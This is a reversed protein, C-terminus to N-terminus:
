KRSAGPPQYDRGVGRQCGLWYRLDKFEAEGRRAADAAEPLAHEVSEAEGPRREPWTPPASGPGGEAGTVRVQGKLARLSDEAQDLSLGADNPGKPGTASSASTAACWPSSGSTPWPSTALETRWGPEPCGWFQEEKMMTFMPEWVDIDRYILASPDSVAPLHPCFKNRYRPDEYVLRRWPRPRDEEAEYSMFPIYWQGREEGWREDFDPLM